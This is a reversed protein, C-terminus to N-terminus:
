EAHISFPINWSCADALQILFERVYVLHKHLKVGEVIRETWKETERDLSYM